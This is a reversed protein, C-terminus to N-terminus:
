LDQLPYIADDRFGAALATLASKIKLPTNPDHGDLQLRPIAPNDHSGHTYYTGPALRPVTGAASLDVVLEIDGQACFPLRLLGLGRMEILGHLNEHPRAVLAAGEVTLMIRDDGILAAGYSEILNLAVTSKGCGSPGMLLVGRRGLLVAGAHVVRIDKDM